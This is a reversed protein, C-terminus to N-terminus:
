RFLAGRPMSVGLIDRFFWIVLFTFAVSVVVAVIRSRIGRKNMLTMAVGVMFALTAVVFGLFRLAFVYGLMWGFYYLARKADGQDDVSETDSAVDALEGGGIADVISAERLRGKRLAILPEVIAIVSALIFLIGIFAPYLGAGPRALRGLSLGTVAQQTYVVAVVLCIAGVIMRLRQTKASSGEVEPAPDTDNSAM